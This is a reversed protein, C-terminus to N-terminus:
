VINTADVPGSFECTFDVAYGIEMTSLPAAAVSAILTGQQVELQEASVAGTKYWKVPTALLERRSLSLVTPVTYGPVSVTANNQNCKILKSNALALTAGIPITTVTSATEEKLYGVGLLGNGTDNLSSEPYDPPPITIKLKTFRYFQFCKGMNTLAVSLSLNIATVNSVTASAINAFFFMKGSYTTVSRSKSKRGKM